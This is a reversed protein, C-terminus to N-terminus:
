RFKKEVIVDPLLASKKIVHRRLLVEVEVAVVEADVGTVALIKVALIKMTVTAQMDAAVAKMDPVTVVVMGIVIENEGATVLGGTGTGIETMTAIGAETTALIVGEIGTIRDPVLDTLTDEVAIQLDTEIETMVAVITGRVIVTATEEVHDTLRDGKVIMVTMM